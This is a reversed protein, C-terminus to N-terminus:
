NLPVEVPQYVGFGQHHLGPINQSYISDIHNSQGMM